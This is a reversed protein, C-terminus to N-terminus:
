GILLYYNNNINAAKLFLSGFIFNVYSNITGSTLQLILQHNQSIALPYGNFMTYSTHGVVSGYQKARLVYDGDKNNQRKVALQYGNYVTYDSQDTANNELVACLIYNGAAYRTLTLPLGGIFIKEAVEPLSSTTKIILENREDPLNVAELKQTGFRVSM